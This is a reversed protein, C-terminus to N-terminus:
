FRHNVGVTFYHVKEASKKGDIAYVNAHKYGYGVYAKTRKSLSEVYSLRFFNSVTKEAKLYDAKTKTTWVFMHPNPAIKKDVEQARNRSVEHQLGAYVKGSDSVPVAVTLEYRKAKIGWYYDNPLAKVAEPETAHFNLRYTQFRLGLALVEFDYEAGVSIERHRNLQSVSTGKTAGVPSWNYQVHNFGASLKLDDLEYAVAVAVHDNSLTKSDGDDGAPATGAKVWEHGVAKPDGPGYSVGLKLGSFEPSVYLVQAERKQLTGFNDNGFDIIGNVDGNLLYDAADTQLGVTLRGFDEGEFGVIARRGFLGTQKSAGNTISFGGELNFILSTGAFLKESGKLGFRNGAINAETFGFTGKKTGDKAKEKSVKVGADLVGYLTVSSDAHAVGSAFAALVASTVLLKKM